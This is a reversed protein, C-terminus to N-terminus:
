EELKLIQIRKDFEVIKDMIFRIDNPDPQQVVVEDLQYKRLEMGISSPSIDYELCFLAAYVELQRMNAPIVGTKLDHIRLYDKYFGIADATGFCNISYFLVQEPKMRYGLADNVFRDFSKNTRPMKVGLEICKAALEHLETGKKVALSRLYVTELKESTYNLWYSGSPSLFAHQGKLESHENFNM